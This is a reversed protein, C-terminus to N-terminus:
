FLWYLLLAVAVALFVLTLPNELLIELSYRWWPKPELDDPEEPPEHRRRNRSREYQRRLRERHIRRRRRDEDM